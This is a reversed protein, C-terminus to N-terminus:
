LKDLDSPLENLRVQLDEIGDHNYLGNRLAKVVIVVWLFVGSAKSVIQGILENVAHRNIRVLERMRVHTDLNETVYILIDSRTFDQLRLTPCSAFAVSCASTPRSSLLLKLNPSCVSRLYEVLEIHDDDYEDVGDIHLCIKLPTVTQTTLLKFAEKLEVLSPDNVLNSRAISRCHIPFVIPVLGSFQFLPEGDAWTALLKQMRPENGIFKMLTSKGSGAKGSIWFCGEGHQLWQSLSDLAWGFPVRGNFVWEFTKRYADSVEARRDGMFRFWLFNLIDEQIKGLHQLSDQYLTTSIDRATVHGQLTAIAAITEEYRVRDLESEENQRQLLNDRGTTFFKRNDLLVDAIRKHEEKLQDFREDRRASQISNESNPNMKLSVVVRLILENQLLDLKDSMETLKRKNFVADLAQRFSKLPSHKGHHCSVFDVLQILEDAVKATESALNKLKTEDASLTSESEGSTSVSELVSELSRTLDKLDGAVSKAEDFSAISGKKYIERGRGVLRSGFDVIQVISTALSLATFPDM